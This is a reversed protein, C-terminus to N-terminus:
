GRRRSDGATNALAWWPCYAFSLLAEATARLGAARLVRSIRWYTRGLIAMDARPTAVVPWASRARIPRGVPRPLAMLEPSTRARVADCIADKNVTAETTGDHRVRGYLPAALNSARCRPLLRSWLEYDQAHRFTEDYGQAMDFLARDIIVAGHCFPNIVPFAERIERDTTPYDFIENFIGRTNSMVVASGLLKIDHNGEAELLAVQHELRNFMSIDDVDQRAIWQGRAMSAAWNLSVTLGRNVQHVLVRLRPDRFARLIRGTGDTSGDDVVIFEFDTYTQALISAVARAIYREGNFVGMLVSVHPSSM